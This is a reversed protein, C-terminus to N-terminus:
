RKALTARVRELLVKTLRIGELEEVGDGEYEIGVYGHYGAALVIALMRAYDTHTENGQADFDHSKASVGRAFPMLEQVGQYRDYEERDSIRFNGFDPLTGVRPHDAARITAALWAGNSSSGGHNEVIVDIEYPDALVALRHLLDSSCM